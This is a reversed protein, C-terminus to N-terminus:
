RRLAQLRCCGPPTSFTGCSSSMSSLTWGLGSSGRGGLSSLRCHVLSGTIPFALSHHDPACACSRQPAQETPQRHRRPLPCTGAAGAGHDLHLYWCGHQCQGIDQASVALSARQPLRCVGVGARHLGASVRLCPWMLRPKQQAKWESTPTAPAVCAWCASGASSRRKRITSWDRAKVNAYRLPSRCRAQLRAVRAARTPARRSAKCALKQARFQSSAASMVTCTTREPGLSDQTGAPPRGSDPASRV